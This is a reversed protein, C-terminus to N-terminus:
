STSNQSNWFKPNKTKLSQLHLHHNLKPLNWTIIRRSQHPLLDVVAQSSSSNNSHNNKNNVQMRLPTRKPHHNTSSEEPNKPHLHEGFFITSNSKWEEEKVIPLSIKTVQHPNGTKGQMEAVDDDDGYRLGTIM